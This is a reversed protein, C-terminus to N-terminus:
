LREAQSDYGSSEQEVVRGGAYARRTKQGARLFYFSSIVLAALLVFLWVRGNIFRM